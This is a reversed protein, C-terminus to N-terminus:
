CECALPLLLDDCSRAHAAATALRRPIAGFLAKAGERWARQVVSTASCCKPWPRDTSVVRSYIALCHGRASSGIGPTALEQEHRVWGMLDECRHPRPGHLGRAPRGDHATSACCGHAWRTSPGPGPCRRRGRSASPASCCSAPAGSWGRAARRSFTLLLARQPALGQQVLHAVAAALTMTQGVRRRRRRAPAEAAPATSWRLANSAREAHRTGPRSPPTCPPAFQVPMWHRPDARMARRSTEPMM